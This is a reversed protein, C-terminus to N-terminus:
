ALSPHSDSLFWVCGLEGGGRRAETAVAADHAEGVPLGQVLASAHSMQAPSRTRGRRRRRRGGRRRTKRHSRVKETGAPAACIQASWLDTPPFHLPPSIRRPNRDPAPHPLPTRNQYRMSGEAERIYRDLRRKDLEGSLLKQATPKNWMQGRRFIPRYGFNAPTKQASLSIRCRSSNSKPSTSIKLFAFRMTHHSTDGYYVM